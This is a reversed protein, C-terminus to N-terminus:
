SKAYPKLWIRLTKLLRDPPGYNFRWECEKLFLDFNQRPIGNYRRLHRKAQNWFNEIGNIHNQKDAFLKSHNIRMHHFDTIDLTDYSRYSDTYVISDPQVKSAIIPILTDARTDRVAITYVRGGRKLLGFVPVKGAAGRGRKGKRVGGFYSEDVEVEGALELAEERLRAFIVVRLKHYFATVSNRNLGVLLCATRAPTGAVFHELLRDTQFHTLKSHKLRM